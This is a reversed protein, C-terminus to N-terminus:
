LSIKKFLRKINQRTIEELSEYSEGTIEALKEYVLKVRQPENLRGRYPEPSLYPSDTEALLRDLPISRVIQDKKANKFTITGGFSFYAGLELYNKAQELSESYCHMLFGNSLLNKNRKLTSLMDGSADRSHIVVPLKEEHAIFLQKEFLEIQRAIVVNDYHYDLGIEGIAVCKSDKALENLVSLNNDKAEESPHFGCTFFVSEFRKSNECAEKSTREDYGIDVIIEGGAEKYRSIIQSVDEYRRDTLHAHSDIM